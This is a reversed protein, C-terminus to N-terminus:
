HIIFKASFTIKNNSLCAIYVGPNLSHIDIEDTLDSVVQIMRRGLLNYIEIHYLSNFKEQVAIRITKHQTVFVSLNNKYKIKPIATNINCGNDGGNYYMNNYFVTEGEEKYCLLYSGRVGPHGSCSNGELLGGLWGVGEIITNASGCHVNMIWFLFRKRGDDLTDISDVQINGSNTGNLLDGKKLDFDYLMTETNSKDAVYYFKNNNDRIAGMYKHEIIAPVDLYLIGTKYLKFYTNANISTDSDIFYKYEEDGSFHQTSDMGCCYEYNIRWESSPKIPYRSQSNAIFLNGALLIYILSIIRM